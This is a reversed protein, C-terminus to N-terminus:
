PWLEYTLAVFASRGGSVTVQYTGPGLTLTALTGPGQTIKNERDIYTFDGIKFSKENIIRGDYCNNGGSLNGLKFNKATKGAPVVLSSWEPVCQNNIIAKVSAQTMADAVVLLSAAILLVGVTCVM